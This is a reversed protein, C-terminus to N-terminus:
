FPYGSFPHNFSSRKRKPGPKGPLHSSDTEPVKEPPSFEHVQVSWPKAVTEAHEGVDV